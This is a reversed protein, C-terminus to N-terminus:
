DNETAEKIGELLDAIESLSMQQFIQDLEEKSLSMIKDFENSTEM